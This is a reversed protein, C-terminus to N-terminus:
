SGPRQRKTMERRWIMPVYMETRRNDEGVTNKLIRTVFIM